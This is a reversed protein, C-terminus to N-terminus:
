KGRHASLLDSMDNAHEEEVALISELLARTTPDKDAFYAIMERYHEVAIREAILNERIMEVVTEAKGYESASRKALGEPNFNPTGGLQNIREALQMMHEQEQAAHEAFEEKPGDSALGSATIAHMTYRLVCVIESALATQLIEVSAKADGGYNDTVAGDEIHERARRRLEPIDSVFPKSITDM